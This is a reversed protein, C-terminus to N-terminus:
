PYYHQIQWYHFKSVLLGGKARVAATVALPPFDTFIVPYMYPVTARIDRM